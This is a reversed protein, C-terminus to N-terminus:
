PLMFQAVSTDTPSMAIAKVEAEEVCRSIVRVDASEDGSAEAPIDEDTDELSPMEQIFQGVTPYAPPMTIDHDEGM